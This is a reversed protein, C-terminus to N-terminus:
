LRLDSGTPKASYLVLYGAVAVNDRVDLFDVVRDGVVGSYLCAQVEGVSLRM